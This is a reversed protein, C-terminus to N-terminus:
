DFLNCFGSDFNNGSLMVAKPVTATIDQMMEAMASYNPWNDFSTARLRDREFEADHSSRRNQTVRVGRVGVDNPRVTPGLNGDQMQESYHPETSEANRNV